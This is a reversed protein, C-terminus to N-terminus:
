TNFTSQPLEQLEEGEENTTGRKLTFLQIYMMDAYNMIGRKRMKPSFEIHALACGQVPAAVHRGCLSARYTHTRRAERVTIRAGIRAIEEGRVHRWVVVEGNRQQAELGHVGKGAKSWRGKAERDHTANGDWCTVRWRGGRRGSELVVEVRLQERRSGTVDRTNVAYLTLQKVERELGVM